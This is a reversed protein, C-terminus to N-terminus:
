VCVVALQPQKKAKAPISFFCGNIVLTICIFRGMFFAKSKLCPRRETKFFLLPCLGPGKGLAKFLFVCEKIIIL